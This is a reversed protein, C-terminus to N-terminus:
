KLTKTEELIKGWVIDECWFHGLSTVTLSCNEPVGAKEYIKKVTEYGRKVGEVLFSPDHEGAIIVLKRPAILCALDQM